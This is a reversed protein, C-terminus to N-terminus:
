KGSLRRRAVLALMGLGALMMAYTGPEPVPSVKISSGDPLANVHALMPSTGAAFAFDAADLGAGTVTWSATDGSLFRDGGPANSNPFQVTWDFQLSADTSSGFVGSDITQGALAAFTGDPGSFKFYDIFAGPTLIATLDFQAGGVIDTISLTAVSSISGSCGSICETFSYSAAQSTSALGAGLALALMGGAIRLGCSQRRRKM